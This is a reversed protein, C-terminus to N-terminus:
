WVVPMVRRRVSAPDYSVPETLRLNLRHGPHQHSLIGKGDLAM